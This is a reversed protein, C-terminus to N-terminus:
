PGDLDPLVRGEQAWEITDHHYSWYASDPIVLSVLTVVPFLLDEASERLMYPSHELNAVRFKGKELHATAFLCGDFKHRHSRM